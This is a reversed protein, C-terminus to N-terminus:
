LPLHPTLPPSDSHYIRLHSREPQSFLVPPRRDGSGGAWEWGEGLWNSYTVKGGIPMPFERHYGRKFGMLIVRLSKYM